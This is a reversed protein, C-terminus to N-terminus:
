AGDYRDATSFAAPAAGRWGAPLGLSSKVRSSPSGTVRQRATATVPVMGQSLKLRFCVRGLLFRKWKIVRTLLFGASLGLEAGVREEGPGQGSVLGRASVALM